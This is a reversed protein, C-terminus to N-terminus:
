DLLTYTVSDGIDADEAQVEGVAQGESAGFPVVFQFPEGVWYPQQPLDTVEITISASDNNGFKDTVIATLNFVAGVVLVDPVAVAIAGTVADIVFSDGPNGDAELAFHLVDYPNLDSAAVVGVEHGGPAGEDVQWQYND